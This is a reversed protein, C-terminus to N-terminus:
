VVGTVEFERFGTELQPSENRADGSPQGLIKVIDPLSLGAFAAATPPSMAGTVVARRLLRLFSRPFRQIRGLEANQADEEPHIAYGLARALSAPRISARLEVYTDQTIANMQRLRVLATPWSVKFYRQIEIIDVPDVIRPPLGLEEAFRRVGASPMLFEGAFGDAFGERSGAGHCLVRNTEDSHFLAHALEHAVAFRQRGPTMDLNVLIGFGMEPHKLFAGSPARRLDAGLPARYTAISLSGYIPDLDLIPASGLGLHARVEEAKRRIDDKQTYKQRHAFPSQTLSRIPENLIGALEAFRDLFQVFEGVGLAAVPDVADDARLLMGVLGDPALEVDRGELLDVPEIGYLRALASLQRDNPIRTGTEWYSVMARSVGLAAGVDDQSYRARRRSRTLVEHLSSM